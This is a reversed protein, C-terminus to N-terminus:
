GAKTESVAESTKTITTDVDYQDCEYEVSEVKESTTASIPGCPTTATAAASNSNCINQGAAVAAQTSLVCTSYSPPLSSRSVAEYQPLDDEDGSGGSEGDDLIFCAFPPAHHQQGRYFIGSVYKM